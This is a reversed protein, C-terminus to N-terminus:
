LDYNRLQDVDAIHIRRGDVVILGKDSLEHLIRSFHEQTLNLRSAIVGKNTPLTVIIANECDKSHERLLYGIIRRRGSHLSYSEVDNMLQHLRMALGAIMKRGLRPDADLEENIAAKSIHLVLSDALAQAYVMFPKDTFMVAEGFTQGQPLIDVVKEGGQPSTFALKVQGYVILYFGTPTDGKHFLIDGRTANIERTGRALRAIEEKELENFLPVHALLAEINIGHNSSHM